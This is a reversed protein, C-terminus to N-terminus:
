QCQRLMAESSPAMSQSDTARSFHRVLTQDATTFRHETPKAEEDLQGFYESEATGTLVTLLFALCGMDHTEWLPGRGENYLM